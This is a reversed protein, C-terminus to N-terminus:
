RMHRKKIEEMVDDFLDSAEEPGIGLDKAFGNYLKSREENTKVIDQFTIVGM